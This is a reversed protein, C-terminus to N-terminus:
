SLGPSFWDAGTEEGLYRSVVALENKIFRGRRVILM